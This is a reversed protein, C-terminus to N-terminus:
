RRRKTKKRSERKNTRRRKHKRGGEMKPCYSPAMNKAQMMDCYEKIQVKDRELDEPTPSDGRQFKCLSHHQKIRVSSCTTMLMKGGRKRRKRRRRTRRGGGLGM